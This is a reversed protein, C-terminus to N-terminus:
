KSLHTITEIQTYHKAIGISGMTMLPSCEEM